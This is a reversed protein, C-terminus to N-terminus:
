RRIYSWILHVIAVSAGVSLFTPVLWSVGTEFVFRWNTGQADHFLGAPNEIWDWFSFTLMALTGVIAGMKIGFRISQLIM